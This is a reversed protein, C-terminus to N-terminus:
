ALTVVYKPVIYDIYTKIANVDRSQKYDFGLWQLQSLHLLKEQGNYHDGLVSRNKYLLDERRLVQEPTQSRLVLLQRDLACIALCTEVDSEM